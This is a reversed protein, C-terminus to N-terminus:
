AIAEVKRAVDVLARETDRMVRLYDLMLSGVRWEESVMPAPLANFERTSRQIREVARRGTQALRRNLHVALAHTQARGEEQLKLHRLIIKQEVVRLASAYAAVTASRALSM